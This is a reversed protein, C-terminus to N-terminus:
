QAAPHTGTRLKELQLPTFGLVPPPNLVISRPDEGLLMQVMPRYATVDITEVGEEMTNSEREAHNLAGRETEDEERPRKGTRSRILGIKRVM